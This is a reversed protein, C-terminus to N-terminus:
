QKLAMKNSFQRIFKLLLVMDGFAVHKQAPMNGFQWHYQRVGNRVARIFAENSHHGPNYINHILPPGATGGAANIGHCSACNTNFVLQGKSAAVTLNGVEVRLHSQKHDSSM